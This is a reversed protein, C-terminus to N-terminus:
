GSGGQGQVGTGQESTTSRNSLFVLIGLSSGPRESIPPGPCQSNWGFYKSLRTEKMGEGDFSEQFSLVKTASM